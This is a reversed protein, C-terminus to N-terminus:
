ATDKLSLEQNGKYVSIYQLSEVFSWIFSASLIIPVCIVTGWVLAKKSTIIKKKKINNSVKTFHRLILLWITAIILSTGIIAALMGASDKIVKFTSEKVYGEM